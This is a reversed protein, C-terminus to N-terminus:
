CQCECRRMGTMKREGRERQVGGLPMKKLFGPKSLFMGAKELKSCPLGGFPGEMQVFTIRTREFRKDRSMVNIKEKLNTFAGLVSSSMRHDSM